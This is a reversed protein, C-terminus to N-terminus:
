KWVLICIDPCMEACLACGTCKELETVGAPEYGKQNYNQEVVLIKKPCFSICLRCGKCRESDILVKAM